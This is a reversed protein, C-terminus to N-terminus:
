KFMKRPAINLIVNGLHSECDSMFLIIYNNDNKWDKYPELIEINNFYGINSSDLILGDVNDNACNIVGYSILTGVMNVNIIDPRNNLAVMMYSKM